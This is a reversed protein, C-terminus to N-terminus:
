DYLNEIEFGKSKILSRYKTFKNPDHKYVKSRVQLNSATRIELNEDIKNDLISDNWNLNLYDYLDKLIKKPNSSLKEIEITYLNKQYEKELNKYM